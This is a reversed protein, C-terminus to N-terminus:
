ELQDAVRGTQPQKRKQAMAPLAYRIQGGKQLYGARGQAMVQAQQALGPEDLALPLALLHVVGGGLGGGGLSQVLGAVM